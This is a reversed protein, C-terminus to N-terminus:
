KDVIFDNDLFECKGSLIIHTKSHDFNNKNQENYPLLLNYFNHHYYILAAEAQKRYTLEV